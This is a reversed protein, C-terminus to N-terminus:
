APWSRWPATGRRPHEDVEFVRHGLRRQDHGQDARDGTAFRGEDIAAIAREHSGLAWADMEERSIGAIKATNWGVTISMDFAPADPPTPTRPPCGTSGTPRHGAVRKKATPSTSFSHVGGAIVASDMGAM